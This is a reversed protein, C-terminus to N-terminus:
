RKEFPNHQNGVESKEVVELPSIQALDYATLQEFSFGTDKIKDLIMAEVVLKTNGGALFHAELYDINLDIDNMKLKVLSDCIEKHKTKRM